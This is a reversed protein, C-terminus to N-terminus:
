KKYIRVKIKNVYYKYIQKIGKHKELALKYYHLAEVTTVGAHNGMLNYINAAIEPYEKWLEEYKHLIRNSAEFYKKKSKSISNEQEYVYVLPQQIFYFNLFESLRISLDYDQLRPMEPDFKISNFVNRNCLLCPTSVIPYLLLEKRTLFGEKKLPYLLENDKMDIGKKIFQCFVIDAKQNVIANMQIELKEKKWIDDSDQFAIYNGKSNEIGVNRAICAGGNKELPIIRLRNDHIEQLKKLSNDTSADDIVIVEIDNYTQELVSNVSQVITGERNFCPIIVSVLAMNKKVITEM